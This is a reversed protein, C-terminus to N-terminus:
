PNGPRFEHGPHTLLKRKLTWRTTAVDPQDRKDRLRPRDPSDERMQAFRKLWWGDRRGPARGGVPALEHLDIVVAVDKLRRGVLQGRDVNV